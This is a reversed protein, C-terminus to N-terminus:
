DDEEDIMNRPDRFLEAKEITQIEASLLWFDGESDIKVNKDIIQIGKEELSGLFSAIKKELIARGEEEDRVCLVPLWEQCTVELVRLPIGFRSLVDPTMDRRMVNERYYTNKEKQFLSKGGMMLYTTKKERGTLAKKLYTKSLSDEYIRTREIMVDGDADVEMWERVTGDDGMIPVMGSLLVQDKQVKEGIKVKPAGSRVIMSVVRGESPSILEMGVHRIKEEKKPVDREKVSVVLKTGKVTISTWTVDPFERMLEKELESLALEKLPMGIKIQRNELFDWLQDKTVKQNGAFEVNWLFGASCIWLVTVTVAGAFFPLRGLFKPLFFPLGIRKRIAVRVRTKRVLPRILFFQKWRLNLLMGDETKEVNWLFIGKLACLNLFRDAKTGRVFIRLYGELFRLLRAM